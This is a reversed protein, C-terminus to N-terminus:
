RRPRDDFDEKQDEQLMQMKPEEDMDLKGKRWLYFFVLFASSMFAITLGYHLFHGAVGNSDIM